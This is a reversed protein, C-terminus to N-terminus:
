IAVKLNDPPAPAVAGSNKREEIMKQMDPTMEKNGEFRAKFDSTSTKSEYVAMGQFDQAHGNAFAFASFVFSLLIKRLM